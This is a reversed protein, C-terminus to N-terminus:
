VMTIDEVRTGGFRRWDRYMRAAEVPYNGYSERLVLAVEIFEYRRSERNVTHLIVFDSSGIVLWVGDGPKAETPEPLQLLGTNSNIRFKFKSQGVLSSIRHDVELV